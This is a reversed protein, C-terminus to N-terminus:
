TESHSNLAGYGPDAPQLMYPLCNRKRSHQMSQVRSFLASSSQQNFVAKQQRFYPGRDDQARPQPRRIERSAEEMNAAASEEALIGEPLAKLPM